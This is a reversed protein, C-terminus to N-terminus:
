VVVKVSALRLSFFTTVKAVISVEMGGQASVGGTSGVTSVGLSIDEDM